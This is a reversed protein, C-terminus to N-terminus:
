SNPSPASIAPPTTPNLPHQHPTPPDLRSLRLATAPFPPKPLSLCAQLMDTGVAKMIEIWGKARSFADEREKSGEPWGRLQLVTTVDHDRAQEEQM